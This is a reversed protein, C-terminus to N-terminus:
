TLVGQEADYEVMLRERARLSQMTENCKQVPDHRDVSSNVSLRAM